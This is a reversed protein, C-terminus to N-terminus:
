LILFSFRSALDVEVGLLSVVAESVRLGVRTSGACTNTTSTMSPWPVTLDGPKLAGGASFFFFTSSFIDEDLDTLYSLDVLFAADLQGATTDVLM